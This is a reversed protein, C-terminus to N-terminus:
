DDVSQMILQRYKWGTDDSVPGQTQKMIVGIIKEKPDAFYQTNFYGGWDFTGISGLGGKNQGNQTLVSFALGYFKDADEGWIDGIQNGLISQVTTRSLLRVGNYEGGNLYMQLFIAYDKATSSLGAGGSFFSKAGKIPYDTDYFTVPYKEWKGNVKHQVAVLRDANEDPQYFHTDGMGLPNFINTRLFEEFSIGSIVEIFYGLVDLGESYTFNAGPEHHLPLKALKKVSEEISINKTTFLDTVGAKQYIMKMREDGDIVGYGIGSTHTLLHRITIETEVPKTLYTTDSFKFSELIQPNEFEPIYRSIPDDLRFKGEEWLMMVATSTIAKSQSAIRFIADRKLKKGSQNDAMGYAKWHVIKGNRAVLTVIGPLNDEKVAQECMENLRALRESSIGVTEPIVETLAQSKKISITQANVVLFGCTFVLLIIILKKM